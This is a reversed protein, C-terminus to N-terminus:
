KYKEKVKAFNKRWEKLQEDELELQIAVVELASLKNEDLKRNLRGGMRSFLREAEKRSLTKAKELYEKSPSKIKMDFTGKGFEAKAYKAGEKNSEQGHRGSHPVYFIVCVIPRHVFGFSNLDGL